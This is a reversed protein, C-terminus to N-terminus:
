VGLSGGPREHCLLYSHRFSKRVVLLSYEVTVFGSDFAGARIRTVVSQRLGFVAFDDADIDSAKERWLEVCPVPAEM